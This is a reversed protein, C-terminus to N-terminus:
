SVRYKTQHNQTLKYIKFTKIRNKLASRCKLRTLERMKVFDSQHRVDKQHQQWPPKRM